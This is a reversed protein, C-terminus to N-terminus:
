RTKERPKHRINFVNNGEDHSIGREIYELEIREKQLIVRGAYTCTTCKRCNNCSKPIYDGMTDGLQFLHYMQKM